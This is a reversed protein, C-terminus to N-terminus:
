VLWPLSSTLHVTVLPLSPWGLLTRLCDSCIFNNHCKTPNSQYNDLVEDNKDSNRDLSLFLWRCVCRTRYIVFNDLSDSYNHHSPLPGTSTIRTSLHWTLIPVNIDIDHFITWLIHYKISQIGGKGFTCYILSVYNIFGDVDQCNQNIQVFDCRFFFIIQEIFIVTSLTLGDIRVLIKNWLM